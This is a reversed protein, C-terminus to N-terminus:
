LTNLWKVDEAAMIHLIIVTRSKNPLVCQFRAIYWDHLIWRIDFDLYIDTYKKLDFIIGLLINVNDIFM